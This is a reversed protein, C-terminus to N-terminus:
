RSAVVFLVTAVWAAALVLCVVVLVRLDRGRPSDPREYWECSPDTHADYRWADCDCGRVLYHRGYARDTPPQPDLRV